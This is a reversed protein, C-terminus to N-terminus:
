SPDSKIHCKTHDGTRPRQWYRDVLWVAGLSMAIMSFSTLTTGLSQGKLSAPFLRGIAEGLRYGVALGGMGAVGYSLFSPAYSWARVLLPHEAIFSHEQINQRGLIRPDETTNDVYWAQELLQIPEVAWHEITCHRFITDQWAGHDIKSHLLGTREFTITRWEGLSWRCYDLRSHRLQCDFATMASWEQQSLHSREIVNHHWHAGHWSSQDIATEEFRCQIWRSHNLNMRSGVLRLWQSAHLHMHQGNIQDLRVEPHLAQEPQRGIWQTHELRAHNWDTHALNCSEIFCHHLATDKWKGHHLSIGQWVCHYFHSRQWHGHDAPTLATTPLRDLHNMRDTPSEMAEAESFLPSQWRCDEYHSHTSELHPQACGQWRTRLYVSRGAQHRHWPSRDWVSNVCTSESANAQEWHWHRIQCHDWLCSKLVLAQQPISQDALLFSSHSWYSSSLDAHDWRSQDFCAHIAQVGRARLHQAHAGQFNTFHWLSGDCNAHQLSAYSVNAFELNSYRLDCHDLRCSSFNTQCAVLNQLKAHSLDTIGLAPLDLTSIDIVLHHHDAEEKFDRLDSKIAIIFDHLCNEGDKGHLQTAFAQLEEGTTSHVKINLHLSKAPSGHVYHPDISVPWQIWGQPFRGVSAWRRRYFTSLVLRDKPGPEGSSRCQFFHTGRLDTQQMQPKIVSVNQWVGDRWSSHNLNPSELMLDRLIVGEFRGFSLDAGRRTEQDGLICFVTDAPLEYKKKLFYVFSAKTKGDRVEKAYLLAEDLSVTFIRDLMSPLPALTQQRYFGHLVAHHDSPQDLLHDPYRM